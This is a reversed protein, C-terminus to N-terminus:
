TAGERNGAPGTLIEPNNRIPRDQKPEQKQRRKQTPTAPNDADVDVPSEEYATEGAENVRIESRTWEGDAHQWILIARVGGGSFLGLAQEEIFEKGKEAGLVCLTTALADAAMCSGPHIVTVSAPGGSLPMGTRPDIIHEYRKGKYTFYREYDGSTAVGCDTLELRELIEESRPSKVGARWGGGDERGGLVRLEGGIDVLANKVGNRLLVEAARDAGFGKAIAGLDLRMGERAWSLRMGEREFLLKDAGVAERAAALAADSPFVSAENQEFRFLRKVPGITPDFAGGSLRHWRLAEMVVRWTLPNVEVWEGPAARNLRAVDSADGVPSMLEAVRKVAEEALEALRAPSETLHEAAPIKIRGYTNMTEFRREATKRDKFWTRGWGAMLYGAIMALVVFALTRNLGGRVGQKTEGPGDGPSDTGPM